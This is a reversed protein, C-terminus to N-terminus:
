KTQGALIPQGPISNYAYDKLIMEGVVIKDANFLYSSSLRAWGYYTNNNKIFKLGLYKDSINLWGAAGSACRGSIVGYVLIEWTTSWSSDSIILASSDLAMAYTGNAMIANSNTPEIESETLRSYLGLLNDSCTKIWVKKTFLFDAVGDNNLDLILSDGIVLDPNVDTYIINSGTPSTPPTPKTPNSDPPATQKVCGSSFILISIIIVTMCLYFFNTPTKTSKMIKKTEVNIITDNQAKLNKRNLKDQLYKNIPFM